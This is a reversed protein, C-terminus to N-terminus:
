SKEFSFREVALFHVYSFIRYDFATFLHTREREGLAHESECVSTGACVCVGMRIAVYVHVRVCVCVCVRVCVFM